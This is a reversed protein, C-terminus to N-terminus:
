LGHEILKDAFCEALPVAEAAVVPFAYTVALLTTVTRVVILGGGGKGGNEAATEVDRGYYSARQISTILDACLVVSSIFAMRCRLCTTCAPSLSPLLACHKAAVSVYDTHLTATRVGNIVATAESASMAEGHEALSGLM